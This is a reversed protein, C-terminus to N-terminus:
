NFDQMSSLNENVLDIEQYMKNMNYLDKALLIFINVSICSFIKLTQFYKINKLYIM